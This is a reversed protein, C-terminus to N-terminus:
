KVEEVSLINFGCEYDDGCSHYSRYAPEEHFEVRV